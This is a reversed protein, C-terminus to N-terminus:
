LARRQGGPESWHDARDMRRVMRRDEWGDHGRVGLRRCAEFAEEKSAFEDRTWRGKADILLLDWTKLGVHQVVGEVEPQLKAFERLHARVRPGAM